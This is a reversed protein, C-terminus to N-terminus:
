LSWTTSGADHFEEEIILKGRGEGLVQAFASEIALVDQLSAQAVGEVALNAPMSFKFLADNDALVFVKEIEGFLALRFDFDNPNAL